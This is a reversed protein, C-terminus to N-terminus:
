DQETSGRARMAEQLVFAVRRARETDSIENVKVDVERKNDEKYLNFTRGLQDLAKLKDLLKYKKVQAWDQDKGLEQIEFSALAAASDDDLLQIPIPNGEEDFFARPDVFATRALEKIIRETTIDEQKILQAQREALRRRYYENQPPKSAPHRGLENNIESKTKGQLQKEIYLDDKYKNFKVPRKTGKKDLGEPFKIAKEPAAFFEALDEYADEDHELWDQNGRDARTAM